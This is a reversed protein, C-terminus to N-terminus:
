RLFGADNMVNIMDIGKPSLSAASQMYRSIKLDHRAFLIQALSITKRFIYAPSVRVLDLTLLRPYFAAATVYRFFSNNVQKFAADFVALAGEQVTERLTSVTVARNGVRNTSQLQKDGIGRRSSGNATDIATLKREPLIDHERSRRVATCWARRGVDLVVHILDIDLQYATVIM